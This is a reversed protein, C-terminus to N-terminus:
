WDRLKLNMQEPHRTVNYLYNNNLLLCNLTSVSSIFLYDDHHVELYPGVPRSWEWQLPWQDKWWIGLRRRGRSSCKFLNKPVRDEEV